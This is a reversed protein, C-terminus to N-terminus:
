LCLDFPFPGIKGVVSGESSRKFTSRYTLHLPHCAKESFGYQDRLYEKEVKYGYTMGPFLRVEHPRDYADFYEQALVRPPHWHDPNDGVGFVFGSMISDFGTLGHVRMSEMSDNAIGIGVWDSDINLIYLCRGAEDCAEQYTRDSCGLVGAFFILLLTSIASRTHNGKVLLSVSVIRRTWVHINSFTRASM